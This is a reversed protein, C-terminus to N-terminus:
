LGSSTQAETESKSIAMNADNEYVIKISMYKSIECGISAGNKNFWYSSFVAKEVKVATEEYGDGAHYPSRFFSHESTPTGYKKTMIEKFNEYESKISYWTSREGFYIVAKCLLNSKLTKFLYLEVSQGGFNGEFKCGKAFTEVVKYGKAKYKGVAVQYDGNIDVGDFQQAFSYISLLIAAFLITIKKM